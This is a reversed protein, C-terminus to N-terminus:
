NNENNNGKRRKLVEELKSIPLNDLIEDIDCEDLYVDDPDEEESYRTFSTYGGAYITYAHTASSNTEFISRRVQKAM